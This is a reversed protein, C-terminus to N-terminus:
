QTELAMLPRLVRCATWVRTFPHMWSHLGWSSHAGESERRRTAGWGSAESQLSVIPHTAVSGRTEGMWKSGWPSSFGKLAQTGHTCPTGTLRPSSPLCSGGPPAGRTVSVGHARGQRPKGCGLAGEGGARNQLGKRRISTIVQAAGFLWMTWVPSGYASQGLPLDGDVIGRPKLKSTPLFRAERNPCNGLQCSRLGM